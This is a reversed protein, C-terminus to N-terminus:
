GDTWHWTSGYCAEKGINDNGVEAKLDGMVIVILTESNSTVKNTFLIRYTKDDNAYNTLQYCQIVNLKIHKSNFTAYM